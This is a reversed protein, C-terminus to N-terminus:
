PAVRTAMGFGSAQCGIAPISGAYSLGLTAGSITSALTGTGLIGQTTLLQIQGSVVAPTVVGDIGLVNVSGTSPFLVGGFGDLIDGKQTLRMSGIGLATGNFTPNACGTQTNTFSVSYTGTLDPLFPGLPGTVITTPVLCLLSPNWQFDATYGGAPLGPLPTLLTATLRVTTANVGRGTSTSADIFVQGFATTAVFLSLLLLLTPRRM